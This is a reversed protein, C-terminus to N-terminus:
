FVTRQALPPMETFGVADQLEKMVHLCREDEFPLFAVQVGVPLGGSGQMARGAARAISDRQARPVENLPYCAEEPRVRTVPVMGAPFHLLNLFLTYSCCSELQQSSGHPFAPLAVGPCLFGDLEKGKLMRVWAEQYRQLEECYQWYERTPLGERKLGRMMFRLRKEGLMYVVSHVAPRLWDPLSTAARLKWYASIM